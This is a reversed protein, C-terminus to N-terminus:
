EGHSRPPRAKFREVPVVEVDHAFALIRLDAQEAVHALVRGAVEATVLSEIRVNGTSLLGHRRPALQGSGSVESLTYGGAGLDSLDREVRERYEAPAVITVLKLVM